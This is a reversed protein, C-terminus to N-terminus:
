RNEPEAVRRRFSSLVSTWLEVNNRFLEPSMGGDDLNIDMKIVPHGDSNRYVKGWRHVSAFANTQQLSPPDKPAALTYFQITQCDEDADNCGYFLVAFEVGGRGSAVFRKNQRTEIVAYLSAEQLAAQIQEHDAVINQAAIPSSVALGAAALSVAFPKHM